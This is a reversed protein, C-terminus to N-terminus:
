SSAKDSAEMVRNLYYQQGLSMVTNTLMYVVLGVPLGVMMVAFIVPLWQMIKRQMDDMGMAPSIKQQFYMAVAMLIPTIFYPDASSLDQMWGFFPAHRLEVASSLVRYLAFFVPMQLLIPFCGKLPNIKHKSMFAMVAMHQQRPDSAHAERIKKIEPQLKRSRYMSIAASRTLPFFLIKLVITLLIIALGYNKLWDYFIHLVYLIPRAFFGFWGLDITETLKPHYSETIRYDKPGTFIDGSLTLSQNPRIFGFNQGFHVTFRCGYEGPLRKKFTYNGRVGSRQSTNAETNNSEPPHPLWAKLFYYLDLGLVYVHSAVEKLVVDQDDECTKESDFHQVAQSTVSVMSPQGMPIGPLVFGKSSTVAALSDEMVVEGQLAMSQTANNTYTIDLNVLYGQKPFTYSQAIHFLGVDRYLTISGPSSINVHFNKEDFAEGNALGQIWFGDQVLDVVDDAALDDLEQKYHKLQISSFGGSRQDVVWRVDDNEFTLEQTSLFKVPNAPTDERSTTSPVSPQTSLSAGSAEQQTPYGANDTVPQQETTPSTQFTQPYKQKLHRNYILVLVTFAMIALISTRDLKLTFGGWRAHLSSMQASSSHKKYSCAQSSIKESMGRCLM